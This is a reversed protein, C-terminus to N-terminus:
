EFGVLLEPALPQDLTSLDGPRGPEGDVTLQDISSLAVTERGGSPPQGTRGLLAQWYEPRVRSREPVVLWTPKDRAAALAALVGGGPEVLAEDPGVALGEIVVVDSTEVLAYFRSPDFAAATVDLRELRRTAYSGRGDIDAVNVVLDGRRGFAEVFTSSGPAIAITAEEPLRSVLRRASRDRRIAELSRFAELRPEAATALRAALDWLAGAVPQQALLRRCAAVMEPHNGELGSLGHAAEEVLMDVDISEARALYRLHEIPHM